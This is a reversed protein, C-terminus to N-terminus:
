FNRISFQQHQQWNERCKEVANGGALRWFLNDAMGAEFNGPQKQEFYAFYDQLFQYVRPPDLPEITLRNLDQALSGVYDRKRCTLLLYEFESRNVFQRVQELKNQSTRQDAPIENLADLLPLLRGARCLAEFQGALASGMQQRIFDELSQHPDTWCNLPIFVPLLGNSSNLTERAQQAAIRWLSFTKGTGPEGLLALRKHQAFAALLDDHHEVQSRCDRQEFNEKFSEFLFSASM